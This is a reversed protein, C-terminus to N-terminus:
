AARPVATKWEPAIGRVFDDFSRPARGLIKNQNELEEETAAMGYEQFFRFMIRLEPIVFEPFLHKVREAWADLDDGAYRVERGLHTSYIRAVDEGTLTDPGHIPYVKGEHGSQTLANVACEAIDRVDVRNLGKSGIPQPYIGHTMIAEKMGLDNQFFNNPQLITYAIGSEKVAKEIPIKTRFHPIAESGRPMCVSMYVIKKVGSDKAASVVFLGEDTEGLCVANLLFVGDIGEFAEPLTEPDDLDARIGEVGAPLRKMKEASHTMVRVAEKRGLLGSVVESGVTGTGGIVLIKMVAEKGYRETFGKTHSLSTLRM